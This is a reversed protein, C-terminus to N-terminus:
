TPPAGPGSPPNTPLRRPRLWGFVEAVSVEFGPLISEGHVLAEPASLRGVPTGPRFVDITKREPDILLGHECGHAASHQLKATAKRVSQEPAIIEVHIDPPRNFANAIEGDADLEVHDARFYVVDLIISRGAFTCRLEVLALGPGAPEALRNMCDTIRITLLSHKGRPSVKVEIRGDIYELYPKEDIRSWRLFEELTKVELTRPHTAM